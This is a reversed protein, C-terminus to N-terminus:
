SKVFSKSWILDGAKNKISIIYISPPMVPLNITTSSGVSVNLEKGVILTGHVSNIELFIDNSLSSKNKVELKSQNFNAIVDFDNILKDFDSTGVNEAKYSIRTPNGLTDVEVNAIHGKSENSVFFYETSRGSNLFGGFFGGALTTIDLWGIFPVKAEISVANNTVRKERLVNYKNVPLQVTGWGDVEVNVDQRIKIRISDVMFGMTLSDPIFRGSIQFAQNVTYDYKDTYDLPTRLIIAPKDYITAGGFLPNSNAFTGLLELNKNTVRFFLNIGPNMSVLNATPFDSAGSVGVVSKYSESNSRHNTVKSFDWNQNVGSAGLTIGSALTDNNYVYNDGVSPLIGSGVTIQSKSQCFILSGFIFIAIKKM